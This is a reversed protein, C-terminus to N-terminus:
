HGPTQMGWIIDATHVTTSSLYEHWFPVTQQLDLSLCPPDFLGGGFGFGFGLGLYSSKDYALQMM